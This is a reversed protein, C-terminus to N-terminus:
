FEQLLEESEPMLEWGRFDKLNLVMGIPNRNSDTKFFLMRNIDIIGFCECNVGDSKDLIRWKGFGETQVMFELWSEM